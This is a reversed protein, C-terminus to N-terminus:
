LIAFTDRLDIQAWILLRDNQHHCWYISLLVITTVGFSRKALCIFDWYKVLFKLVPKDGQTIEYLSNKNFMQSLMEIPSVCNISFLWWTSKSQFFIFCCFVVHSIYRSIYRCCNTNHIFKLEIWNHTSMYVLLFTVAFPNTNYWKYYIYHLACLSGGSFSIFNCMTFSM